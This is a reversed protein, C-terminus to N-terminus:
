LLHRIRAIGAARALAAQEPSIDIDETDFGAQLLRVFEGRRGGLDVAPGAAAWPLLSYIVRRHVLAAAKARGCGAHQSAYAEYSRSRPDALSATTM